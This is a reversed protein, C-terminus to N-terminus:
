GSRRSVTKRLEGVQRIKGCPMKSVINLTKRASKSVQLVELDLGPEKGVIDGKLIQKRIMRTNTHSIRLVSRTLFAIRQLVNPSDPKAPWARWPSIPHPPLVVREYS